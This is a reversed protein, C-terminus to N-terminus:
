LEQWELTLRLNSWPGAFGFQADLLRSYLDYVGDALNLPYYSGGSASASGHYVSHSVDSKRSPILPDTLFIEVYPAPGPWVTPPIWLFWTNPVDPDQVIPGIPFAPLPLFDPATM